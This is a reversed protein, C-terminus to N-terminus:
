IERTLDRQTYVAAGVFQSAGALYLKAKINSIVADQPQTFGVFTPLYVGLVSLGPGYDDVVDTNGVYSTAM